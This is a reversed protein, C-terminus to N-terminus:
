ELSVGEYKTEAAIKRLTEGPQVLRGAADDAKKPEAALKPQSAQRPAAMPRPREPSVGGGQVTEVIRAEAVPRPSQAAIDPPDLLFTYERVLRGTPWNLEVLFDLFPENVPKVSTVKVVAQGNPRKDLTFRLDLLISVYDIGAQRFADQPALRATMGALEDRNAAIDLEARLPQGLSSLVTLKGIGAAEAVWPTLSIFSAVALATARQKFKSRNTENV